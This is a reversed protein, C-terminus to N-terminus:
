RVLQSLTGRCLVARAFPIARLTLLTTAIDAPQLERRLCVHLSRGGLDCVPHEDALATPARRSGFSARNPLPAPMHLIGGCACRGAHALHGRLRVAPFTCPDAMGM